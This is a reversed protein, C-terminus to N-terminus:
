KIDQVTFTFVIKAKDTDLETMSPRAIYPAVRTVYTTTYGYNNVTETSVSVPVLCFEYDKVSSPDKRFKELEDLFFARMSTFRYSATEANYDATFSTKNDPIKNERFFSEREDVPVMLLTPALSLDYDNSIKRAPIEMTLASVVALEAESQSYREILDRVPFKIVTHYGGPSTILAKGSAALDQLTKSPTYNINNSSLVEPASAFLCISDRVEVRRYEVKNSDNTFPKNEMRHWYMFGHMGTINSVCGNGFNQEVYFGPLWENFKAPWQFIPDNARYKHYLESIFKENRIKVPIWIYRGATFLSDRESINSVTYSKEGYISDPSPDYYGTPDFRSNIDAPLQRNLRFVRLQQPALSDGTMAGRPISLILRMSDVDQFTISDPINMKTASMMQSVFNCKLNGFEPVTLNGLLKTTTRSDFDEVWRSEGKVDTVLSDVIISIDGKSLSGGIESVEDRCATFSLAICTLALVPLIQRM